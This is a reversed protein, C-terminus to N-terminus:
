LFFFSHAGSVDALEDASRAGTHFHVMLKATPKARASLMGNVDIIKKNQMGTSLTSGQEAIYNRWLQRKLTALLQGACQVSKNVIHDRDDEEELGLAVSVLKRLCAAFFHLKSENDDAYDCHSLFTYDFTSQVSEQTKNLKTSYFQLVSQLTTGSWDLEGLVRYLFERQASVAPIHKPFLYRGLVDPSSVGLMILAHLLPVELLAGHRTVFSPVNLVIADSTAMLYIFLTSTSNWKTTDRLSRIESVYRYKKNSSNGDVKFVFCVNPIVRFQMFISKPLGNIVFSATVPSREEARTCYGPVGAFVGMLMPLDFLPVQANVMLTSSILLRSDYEPYPKRTAQVFVDEAAFEWPDGWRSVRPYPLIIVVAKEDFKDAIVGPLPIPPCEDAGTLQGHLRGGRVKGKVARWGSGQVGRLFQEHMDELTLCDRYERTEHHVDALVVCALTSKRRFAQSFSDLQLGQPSRFVPPAIQVKAFYYKHETGGFQHTVQSRSHGAIIEPLFKRVFGEFENTMVSHLPLYKIYDSVVEWPDFPHWGANAASQSVARLDARPKGAM